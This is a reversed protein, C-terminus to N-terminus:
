LELKKGGIKGCRRCVAYIEMGNKVIQFDHCGNSCPNIYKVKLTNNIGTLTQAQSKKNM